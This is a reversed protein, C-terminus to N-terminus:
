TYLYILSHEYECYICTVFMSILFFFFILIWETLISYKYPLLSVDTKKQSGGGVVTYVLYM